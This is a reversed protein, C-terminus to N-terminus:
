APRRRGGGVVALLGALMAFGALTLLGGAYSGTTQRVYGILLPGFYGSLNGFANILAIGGAAGVGALVRTPLTWFVPIVSYISAAAVALAIFALPPLGSFIASAAFGIGAAFCALAVHWAREGTRDSHAGWFYMAPVAMLYPIATLLGVQTNTMGGFSKLIQPLWFTIGYFGFVASFYVLAFTWVRVDLVAERLSFRQAPDGARHEKALEAALWSKEAPTLWGAEMPRDTLVRLALLGLLVAPVGQLIFLWQWGQLGLTRIGLLVTSAPAGLVSSLPLALLFAGSIRGRVAAPFWYTLYLIMGPFFGAEAAGLLFRLTYFSAPGTVFAMATSVLGWAIMIPMIVARTGFKHLAVNSPVQFLFYGLFLIGAGNGYIEPSFGLDHNMTLAAFGVNVRDLFSVLYLLMMFPILRRAIKGFTRQEDATM